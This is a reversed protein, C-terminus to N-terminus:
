RFTWINYWWHMKIKINKHLASKNELEGRFSLRDGSSTRSCVSTVSCSIVTDKVVSKSRHSNPEAADVSCQCLAPGRAQTVGQRSEIFKFQLAVSAAKKLWQKMFMQHPECISITKKQAGYIPRAFALPGNPCCYECLETWCIDPAPNFAWIWFLAARGLLRWDVRFPAELMGFRTLLGGCSVRTWDLVSWAERTEADCM